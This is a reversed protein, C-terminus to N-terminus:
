EDVRLVIKGFQQGQQMRQHAHNANSLPLVQDIIPKRCSGDFFNLVRRFEQRTVSRAAFITLHNWFIRRLDTKPTAGAVSGCTVLRGGRALAALGASWAEGGVNNVVVDVGRKGTLRRVEKALEHTRSDIGHHAGRETAAALKEASRSTVFVRAGIVRALQLAASAVGGGAGIILISEGPKLDAHTFLMRWATAYVLPFAAAEEFSLGAPAAFCNKAPVRVYEAYTGDERDGLLRREGCLSEQENACLQCHGCGIVPYFCVAAGPKVNNVAVGVSVVIGAGDAGLIRPFSVQNCVSGARLTLDVRNVAAAKLNVIVDSPSRLQPDEADEYRLQDSGGHAHIRVAKM